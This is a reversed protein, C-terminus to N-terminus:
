NLWAYLSVMVLALLVWLVVALRSWSEHIPAPIEYVTKDRCTLSIAVMAIVLIVFLYFSLLM